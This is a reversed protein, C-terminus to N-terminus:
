LSAASAVAEGDFAVCREGCFVKFDALVAPALALIFAFTKSQM